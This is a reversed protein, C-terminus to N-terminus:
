KKWSFIISMKKVLPFEELLLMFCAFSLYVDALNFVFWHGFVFFDRVAGIVVRDYLNGLLWALFIVAISCSISWSYCGRAFAFFVIVSVVLIFYYNLWIGFSIGNNLLPEFFISWELLALDYFLYKLLQDLLFLGILLLFLIYKKKM